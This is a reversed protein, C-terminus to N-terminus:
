FLVHHHAHLRIAMGPTSRDLASVDIPLCALAIAWVGTPVRVHIRQLQGPTFAASIARDKVEDRELDLWIYLFSQTLQMTNLGIARVKAVFGCSEAAVIRENLAFMNEPSADRMPLPTKLLDLTRNAMAAAASANTHASAAGGGAGMM